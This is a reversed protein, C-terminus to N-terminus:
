FEVSQSVGESLCLEMIALPVLEINESNSTAEALSTGKPKGSNCEEHVVLTRRKHEQM